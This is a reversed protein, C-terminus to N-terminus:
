PNITIPTGDQVLEYIEEIEEDTVAICGATWDKAKHWIDFITKPAKNPFGHIMIDGGASYGNEKAKKIQEPTPYSIRLSLHYSSHPNHATIYYDGEPTRNDGEREKAGSPAKGLSIRYTRVIDGGSLLYLRRKAKEVVISDIAPSKNNEKAVSINTLMQMLVVATIIHIIHMIPDGMIYIKSMIIPLKLILNIFTVFYNM